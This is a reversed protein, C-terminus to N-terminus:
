ILILDKTNFVAEQLRQEKDFWICRIGVLFNSGLEEKNPNFRKTEKEKVIMVPKNDIDQRIQVLDGPAFYVKEENMFM